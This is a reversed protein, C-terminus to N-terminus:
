EHLSGDVTYEALTSPVRPSHSSKFGNVRLHLHASRSTCGAQNLPQSTQKMLDTAYLSYLRLLLYLGKICLKLLM